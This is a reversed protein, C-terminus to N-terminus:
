WRDVIKNNKCTPKQYFTMKLPSVANQHIYIAWSYKVSELTYNTMFIVICINQNINHENIIEKGPCIQLPEM